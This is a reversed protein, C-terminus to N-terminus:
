MFCHIVGEEIEDFIERALEMKTGKFEKIDGKQNILYAPHSEEEIESLDNAVILFARIKMLEEQARKILEERSVKYELKFGVIKLDPYRCSVEEIIKVTPELEIHWSSGSKVKEMSYTSPKFDLV